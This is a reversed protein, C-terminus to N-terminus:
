PAALEAPIVIERNVIKGTATKPLMEVDGVEGQSVQHGNKEVVRMEVDRIPTGGAADALLKNVKRAPAVRWV